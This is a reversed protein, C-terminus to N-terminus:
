PRKREEKRYVVGNHLYEIEFINATMLMDREWQEKPLSCTAPLFYSAPLLLATQM